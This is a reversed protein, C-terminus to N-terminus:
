ADAKASDTEPEVVPTPAFRAYRRAGVTAEASAFERSSYCKHALFESRADITPCCSAITRDIPRM